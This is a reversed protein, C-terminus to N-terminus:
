YQQTNLVAEFRLGEIARFFDKKTYPLQNMIINTQAHQKLENLVQPNLENTSLSGDHIKQNLLKEVEKPIAERIYKNLNKLAEVAKRHTEDTKQSLYICEDYDEKKKYKPKESVDNGCPHVKVSFVKSGLGWDIGSGVPDRDLDIIQQRLYLNLIYLAALARIFLKINGQSLNNIRSHKIAQYAVAWDASNSRFNNAHLLPTLIKNSDDNFYLTPCTVFVVKKSLLWRRELLDICVKDFYMKKEDLITGGNDVYLKKSIAEIEVCTRMLLDAIRMSYVNIQNDDIFIVDTLEILGQELRQYINWYLNDM